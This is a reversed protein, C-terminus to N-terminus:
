LHTDNLEIANKVQVMVVVVLRHATITMIVQDTVLQVLAYSGNTYM